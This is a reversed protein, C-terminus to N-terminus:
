IVFNVVTLFQITGFEHVNRNISFFADMSFTTYKNSGHIFFLVNHLWYNDKKRLQVIRTNVIFWTKAWGTERLQLQSYFISKIHMLCTKWEYQDISIIPVTKRPWEMYHLVLLGGAHVFFTSCALLFSLKRKAQTTYKVNVIPPRIHVVLVYM